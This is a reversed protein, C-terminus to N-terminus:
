RPPQPLRGPVAAARGGRGRRLAAPRAQLAGQTLVPMLTALGLALFDYVIDYYALSLFFGGVGLALLSLGVFRPLGPDASQRPRRILLDFISRLILVIFLAGGILGVEASVQIYMNHAAGWKFGKGAASRERSVESLMGEALDFNAIGVGFIPHTVAYGIGRKWVEKRGTQSTVNYDSDDGITSLRAIFSSPILPVALVALVLAAIGVKRLRAGGPAMMLWAFGIICASLALFGGRSGSKISAYLIMPVAGIGLIRWKGKQMICWAALPLTMVAVVALDNPDYTYGGSLRGESDHRGVVLALAIATFGSLFLLRGVFLQGRPTRAIAWVMVATLLTRLWSDALFHFSRGNSISFPVGIIAIVAMGAIVKPMWHKKLDNPKWMHRSQYMLILAAAAFLMPFRLRGMIQIHQHIRSISMFVTFSVCWAAARPVVLGAGFGERAQPARARAPSVRGRRPISQVPGITM